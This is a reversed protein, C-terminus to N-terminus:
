RETRFVCSGALIGKCAQRLGSRRQAQQVVKQAKAKAEDESAASSFPIYILKAKIERYKNQNKDYFQKQEEPTVLVKSHADNWEAQVLTMM